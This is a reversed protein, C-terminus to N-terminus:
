RELRSAIFDIQHSLTEDANQMDMMMRGCFALGEEIFSTDIGLSAMEALAEPSELTSQMQIKCFYLATKLFILEKWSLKLAYFDRDDALM